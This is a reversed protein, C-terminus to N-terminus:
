GGQWEASWTTLQPKYGYAKNVADRAANHLAVPIGGGFESQALVRECVDLLDPAAIFLQANANCQEQGSFAPNVVALHASGAFIDLCSTNATFGRRVFQLPGPTFKKRWPDFNDM